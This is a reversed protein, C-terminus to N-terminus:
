KDQRPSVITTKDDLNKRALSLRDRIETDEPNAQRLRELHFVAAFWNASMEAMAAQNKHWPAADSVPQVSEPSESAVASFERELVDPTARVLGGAADLKHATALLAVRNITSLPRPDPRCEVNWVSGDLVGVVVTAGDPTFRVSTVPAGFLIPPGLLEGTAVEWFRLTHDNGGTALYRGGPAFAACRVMAEHRLAPGASLRTAADWLRATNDEGVTVIIRGSPSFVAERVGDGHEMHPPMLQGTDADILIAARPEIEEDTFAAVVSRGDLSFQLGNVQGPKQM